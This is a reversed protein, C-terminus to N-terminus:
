GGGSGVLEEKKLGADWDDGGDGGDVGLRRVVGVLVM